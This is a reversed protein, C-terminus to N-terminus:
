EVERHPPTHVGINMDNQRYKVGDNFSLTVHHHNNLKHRLLVIDEFMLFQIIPKLVLMLEQEEDTFGPNFNFFDGPRPVLRIKNSISTLLELTPNLSM